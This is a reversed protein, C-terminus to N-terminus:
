LKGQTQNPPNILSAKKQNILQTIKNELEVDVPEGNIDKNLFEGNM